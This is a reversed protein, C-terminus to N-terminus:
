KGRGRTPPAAPLLLRHLLRLAGPEGATAWTEARASHSRPVALNHCPHVASIHVAAARAHLHGVLADAIAQTADEQLVLGNTCGAVLEALSGFGALRDTPIYGVTATGLAVTLHHPCVLHMGIGRVVVPTPNVTAPSRRFIEAPSRTQAPVLRELWLQAARRATRRLGPRRAHGLADLLDGFAKEVRRRREGTTPGRTKM